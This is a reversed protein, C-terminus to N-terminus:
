ETRYGMRFGGWHRGHVYIPASLDHMIEGTDRRYTQLLFAQEHAGCRKGVPDSFIRKTRNHLFDIKEDGTLAKSFRRNHTPFYGNVDVAGAYAIEPYRDLIPEQLRPLIRDTLTDFKSTFKQPKTNPIPTYTQDFLDDLPILGRRVADEFARGVDKAAQQAISPMKAHIAQAYEGREGLKFVNGVEKLNLALTDLQGADGLTRTAAAHNAETMLLIQQVFQTIHQGNASQQLIANAITGVNDTTQQAGVNITQLAEAAERSLGAGGQAQVSDQQISVIATQTDRQIASIMASIEGTAATTREALRRVEGAVVAFGRGQEGACAAEIAANLALLNTQDAIDEITRVIGSIALSRQGLAGVVQASREVSRAIREMEESARGVIEAGRRSLERAAKVNQATIEANEAVQKIGANMEDIGRMSAQAALRQQNSGDVVQKAERVLKDAADAVQQSNFSVQGIISQVSQILDNFAGATKVTAPSGALPARRSLDGDKRTAQICDHLSGLPGLLRTQALAAPVAAVVLGVGLCAAIVWGTLQGGSAMVIVLDAVAVVSALLAFGILIPTVIGRDRM